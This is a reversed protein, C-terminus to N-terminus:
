MCRLPAAGVWSGRVFMGREIRGRGPDGAVGVSM